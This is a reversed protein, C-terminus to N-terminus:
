VPSFLSFLDSHSLKHIPSVVHPKRVLWCLDPWNNIFYRYTYVSYPESLDKKMLETIWELQGEHTYTKYVIGDREVVRENRLPVSIKTHALDLQTQKIEHDAPTSTSM